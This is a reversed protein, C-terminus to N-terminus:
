KVDVIKAKYEYYEWVEDKRVIQNLLIKGLIVKPSQTPHVLVLVRLLIAVDIFISVAYFDQVSLM